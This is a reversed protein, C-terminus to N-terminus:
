SPFRRLGLKSKWLRSLWKMVDGYVGAYMVAKVAGSVSLVVVLVVVGVYM